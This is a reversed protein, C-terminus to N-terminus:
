SRRIKRSYMEKIEAENAIMLQSVPYFGSPTWGLDGFSYHDFRCYASIGARTLGRVEGIGYEPHLKYKVLAGPQFDSQNEQKPSSAREEIEELYNTIKKLEEDIQPFRSGKLAQDRRKQRHKKHEEVTVPAIIQSSKM